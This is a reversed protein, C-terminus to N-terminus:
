SVSYLASAAESPIISLSNNASADTFRGFRCLPDGMLPHMRM